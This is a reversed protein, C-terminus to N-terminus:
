STLLREDISLISYIFNVDLRFVVFGISIDLAFNSIVRVCVRADGVTDSGVNVVM